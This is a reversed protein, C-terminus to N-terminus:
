PSLVLLSRPLGLFPRTVLSLFSLWSLLVVPLLSLSCFVGRICYHLWLDIPNLSNARAYMALANQDVSGTYVVYKLRVRPLYRSYPSCVM